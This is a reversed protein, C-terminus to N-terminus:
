TGGKGRTTAAETTLDVGSSFTYTRSFAAEENASSMWANTWGHVEDLKTLWSALPETTNSVGGFTMAGIISSVGTTPETGTAAISGNMSTLYADAPIIQSIDALVGSWSIEGVFVTNVLQQKGELQSQLDAYKQLGTAQAQLQANVAQQAALDDQARSENMVQFFYFVGILGLAIVGAVIVIGTLRRTAERARLEPPLLNVQSM